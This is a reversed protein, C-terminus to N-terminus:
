GLLLIWPFLKVWKKRNKKDTKLSKKQKVSKILRQLTGLNACPDTRLNQWRKFYGATFDISIIKGVKEQKELVWFKVLVWYKEPFWCKGLVWCIESVLLNKPGM